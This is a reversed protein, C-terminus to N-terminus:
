RVSMLVFVQLGYSEIECFQNALFSIYYYWPSTGFYKSLGLVVNVHM